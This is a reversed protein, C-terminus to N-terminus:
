VAKWTWTGYFAPNHMAVHNAIFGPSMMRGFIALSSLEVNLTQGALNTRTSDITLSDFTIAGEDSETAEYFLNGNRYIKIDNDPVLDFAVLWHEWTDAVRQGLVSSTITETSSTPFNDYRFFTRNVDTTISATGTSELRPGFQIQSEPGVDPDEDIQVTLAHVGGAAPTFFAPVNVWMGITGNTSGGVNAVTTSTYTGTATDDIQFDTGSLYSYPGAVGGESAGGGFSGATWNELRDTGAGDLFWGGETINWDDDYTNDKGYTSADAPATASSNGAWIRLFLRRYCQPVRVALTGTKAGSNFAILDRAFEVNRNDTVRIDDGASDVADWWTTPLQSLDVLYTQDIEVTTYGQAKEDLSYAPQKIVADHTAYGDWGSSSFASGGGYSALLCARGTGLLGGSPPVEAISFSPNLRNRGALEVSWDMSEFTFRASESSGSVIEFVAAHGALTPRCRWGNAKMTQSTVTYRRSRDQSQARGYADEGTAGTYFHFELDDDDNPVSAAINAERIIRKERQTGSLPIPGIKAGYVWGTESTATLDWRSIGGYGKGGFIASSKNGALIPDFRMTVTPYYQYSQEWFSGTTIDYWWAREEDGRAFLHIGNYLADYEINVKPDATDYVLGRLENPITGSVLTPVANGGPPLAYLGSLGWFWLIGDPTRTWAGQGMMGVSNSVTDVIGDRRPHGRFAVMFDAGAAIMTDENHPALAVVPGNILGEDRTTTSFAGQEDETGVSFDWDTITDQRCCSVVHPQARQGSLWIANQWTACVRADLPVTGATATLTSLNNSPYDYLLPATTDNCIVAQANFPTAFVARGTTITQTATPTAASFASGTWHYLTGDNAAIVTEVPDESSSGNVQLLLNVGVSGTDGPTDWAKLQPRTAMMARRSYPDFPLFNIAEACSFPPQKQFATNRVVGRLPPQIRRNAM